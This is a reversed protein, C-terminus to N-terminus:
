WGLRQVGRVKDFHEDRSVIALGHQRALAAIWADNAPVPSGKRKLEPRIQTYHHTTEECIEGSGRKTSLVTSPNPFELATNASCL